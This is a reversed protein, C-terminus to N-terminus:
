DENRLCKGSSEEVTAGDIIALRTPLHMADDHAKPLLDITCLHVLHPDKQWM